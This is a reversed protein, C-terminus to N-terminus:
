SASAPLSSAEGRILVLGDDDETFHLPGFRQAFFQWECDSEVSGALARYGLLQLL